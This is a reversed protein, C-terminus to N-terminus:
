PILPHEDANAQQQQRVERLQRAKEFRNIDVKQLNAYVIEEGSMELIVSLDGKLRQITLLDRDRTIRYNNKGEEGFTDSQLENLMEHCFAAIWHAQEVFRQQLATDKVEPTPDDRKPIQEPTQLSKLREIERAIEALNAEPAAERNPQYLVVSRKVEKSDHRQMARILPNDREADYSVQLYKQLGGWSYEKGLEHGQISENGISYTIGKVKETRTYKVFPEIGVQKLQSILQPMTAGAQAREDIEKAILSPEFAKTNELDNTASKQPLNNDAIKEDQSNVQLNIQGARAELRKLIKPLSYANGVRWGAISVGELQYSIGQQAKQRNRSIKAEIGDQKLAELFESLNTVKTLALDIRDALQKKVTPIGTELERKIQSITPAQRDSEWINRVQVLGYDKEIQNIIKRSRVREWSDSVVTGDCRIRSAVLHVHEHKKDKHKVALFFSKTYGMEQLYRDIIETWAEDSLSEKPSLSLMMHSVTKTVRPRLQQTMEFCEAMENATEGRVNMNLIEFTPRKLVYALCSKFSKGQIIKGIM